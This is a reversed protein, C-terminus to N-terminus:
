TERPRVNALHRGSASYLETKHESHNPRKTSIHLGNAKTYSRTTEEPRIKKKRVWQTL